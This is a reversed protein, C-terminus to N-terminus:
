SNPPNGKRASEMEALRAEIQELKALIQGESGRGRQRAQDIFMATVAATVVAALALGQLMLVAGILRGTTRQPVVDGYGVTTVTQLAWWLSDGISDFDKPDILRAAIGGAVTLVLSTVAIIQAARRVKLPQGFLWRDLWSPLVRDDPPPKEPDAM